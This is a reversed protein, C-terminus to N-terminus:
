VREAEPEGLIGSPRIFLVLLLIIFAVANKYASSVIGTALSETVGLLLGGLVAGLMSGYGGLVAAAFGKLGLLFGVDYSTTTIPAIIIGAIAGLGGSMAFSLLVMRNVSIGTLSAARRNCSTARMAKGTLSKKFFIYLTVVVVVTIGLVWLNQPVITARLIHIPKNGSFSPLVFPDSGWVILALGRVFISAGITIFILVLVHQSRATRIASREFMAGILTVTVIALPISIPLPIGLFAFFTVTIMGGLTVFECQLLNMIGSANHVVGFGIAILAYISGTTLGSFFFQSLKDLLIM